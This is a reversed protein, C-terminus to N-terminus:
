ESVTVKQTTTLGEYDTGTKGSITITVEGATSLTAGDAPDTTYDTSATLTEKSGDAMTAKVIMGTLDLTNDSDSIDYTTKTPATTVAISIVKDGSVNGPIINKDAMWVLIEDGEETKIGGHGDDLLKSTVTLGEVEDGSADKYSLQVDDPNPINGETGFLHRVMENSEEVKKEYILM